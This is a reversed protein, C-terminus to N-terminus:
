MITKVCVKVDIGVTRDDPSIPDTLNRDHNLLASLLSTKGQRGEGLLFLRAEKVLVSGQVRLERLYELVPMWGKRLIEDPLEVDFSIDSPDM